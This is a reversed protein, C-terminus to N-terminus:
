SALELMSRDESPRGQNQLKGWYTSVKRMREMVEATRKFKSDTVSSGKVKSGGTCIIHLSECSYIEIRLFDGSSM